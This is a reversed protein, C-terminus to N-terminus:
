AYGMGGLAGIWNTGDVCVFMLVDYRSATATLAPSVGGPWKVTGPWTIARNGTADQRAIVTFSKGAAATPFTLTCTTATLTLDHVQAVTVDPLTQTSGATAVTNVAASALAYASDLSAKTKHGAVPWWSGDAKSLLEVSERAWVLNLTSTPTGRLNLTVTVANASSDTKEVSISQGALSADALTMAKAGGSADVPNHRGVTLAGNSTAVALVDSRVLTGTGPPTIHSM